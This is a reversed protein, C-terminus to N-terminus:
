FRLVTNLNFLFAHDDVGLIPSTHWLYAYRDLDAFVESDWLWGFGMSFSLDQSYNWTFILDLENGINDRVSWPVNHAEFFAYLLKVDIDAQNNFLPDLSAGVAVQIKWYNDDIDLGYDNEEVILTADNDEFSVFDKNDEWINGPDGAWGGNDGSLSMFMFEVWPRWDIDAQTYKFGFYYGWGKQEQDRGYPPLFTDSRAAGAPQTLIDSGIHSTGRFTPPAANDAYWQYYRQPYIQELTEASAFDGYQVVLEFFLELNGGAGAVNVLNWDVGFLHNTIWNASDTNTFATMFRLTNNIDPDETEVMWDLNFGYLGRDQHWNGTEVITGLFADAYLSGGLLDPMTYTATMGAFEQSQIAQYKGIIGPILIEPGIAESESIDLFFANGDGRLDYELDTIGARMRLNEVLGDWEIYAQEVELTLNDDGGRQTVEGQNLYPFGSHIGGRSDFGLAQTGVFPVGAGAALASGFGNGQTWPTLSKPDTHVVGLESLPYRDTQENELQIFGRVNDVLEIDINLTIEPDMFNESNRDRGNFIDFAAVRNVFDNGASTNTTGLDIGYPDRLNVAGFRYLDNFLNSRNVTDLEIEGSITICKAGKETTKVDGAQAFGALIALSLMSLFFKRM